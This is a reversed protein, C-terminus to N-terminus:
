TALIISCLEIKAVKTFIEVKKWNQPKFLTLHKVKLM